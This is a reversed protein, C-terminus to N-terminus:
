WETKTGGDYPRALGERILERGVPEGDVYVDALIRFYKDRQLRKLEVTEATNLRHNLYDRAAIARTRIEPRDDTMEPTDIGNIRVSISEGILPHIGEIDCTFTDGDYVRMIGRVELSGYNEQRFESQGITYLVTNGVRRLVAEGGAPDKAFYFLSGLSVLTAGFLFVVLRKLTKM